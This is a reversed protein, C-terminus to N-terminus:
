LVRLEADTNLGTWEIQYVGIGELFWHLYSEVLM